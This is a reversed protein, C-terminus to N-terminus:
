NGDKRYCSYSCYYKKYKKNYGQKYVYEKLSGVWFENGCVPCRMEVGFFDSSYKKKM